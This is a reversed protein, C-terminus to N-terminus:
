NAIRAPELVAGRAPSFIENDIRYGEIISDALILAAMTGMVVGDSNFGAAVYETHGPDLAGIYPLGDSSRYYTHSWKILLKNIDFHQKLHNILLAFQRDDNKGKVIKYDEGRVELYNTDSLTLYKHGSKCLSYSMTSQFYKKNLEASACYHRHPTLKFPELLAVRSTEPTYVVAAAEIKGKSTFVIKSTGSQVIKLVRAREMITGGLKKFQAAMAKLYVVCNFAMDGTLRAVKSTLIPHPLRDHGNFKIGVMSCGKVMEELHTDRAAMTSFLYTDIPMLNCNINYLSIYNKIHKVAERICGALYCTNSYGIQEIISSYSKEFFSNLHAIYSGATEIGITKQELVLIKRGSQQLRHALTIGTIGGGIVVFDYGNNSCRENINKIKM